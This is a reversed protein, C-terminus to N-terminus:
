SPTHILIVNCMTVSKTHQTLDPTIQHVRKITGTVHLGNRTVRPPPATISIPLSTRRRAASGRLLTPSRKEEWYWRPVINVVSYEITNSQRIKLALGIRKKKTQAAREIKAQKLVTKGKEEKNRYTTIKPSPDNSQHRTITRELAQM